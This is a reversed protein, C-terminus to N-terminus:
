PLFLNVTSSSRFSLMQPLCALVASLLPLITYVSTPSSLHASTGDQTAKCGLLLIWIKPQKAAWSLTESLCQLTKPLFSFFLAKNENKFFRQGSKPSNPPLLLLASAPLGLPPQQFCPPWLPSANIPIGGRLSPKM